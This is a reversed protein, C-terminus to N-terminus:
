TDSYREAHQRQGNQLAEALRFPFDPFGYLPMSTTEVPPSQAYRCALRRYTFRCLAIGESLAM